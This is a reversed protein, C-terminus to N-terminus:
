EWTDGKAPPPVADGYLELELDACARAYLGGISVGALPWYGLDTAVRKMLRKIPTTPAAFGAHQGAPLLTMFTRLMEIRDAKARMAARERLLAADLAHEHDQSVDRPPCTSECEVKGCNWCETKSEVTM